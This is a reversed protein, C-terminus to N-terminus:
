ERKKCFNYWFHEEGDIFCSNRKKDDDKVEYKVEYFIVNKKLLFLLRLAERMQPTGGSVEFVIKEYNLNGKLLYKDKIEEFVKRIKSIDNNLEWIEINFKRDKYKDELYKKIIKAEYITDKQKNEDDENLNQNSAILIIKDIKEDKYEEIAPEIMPMKLHEKLKNFKEPNKSIEEFIKRTTEYFKYKQPIIKYKNFKPEKKALPNKLEEENSIMERILEDIDDVEFQVDRNGLTCILCIGM